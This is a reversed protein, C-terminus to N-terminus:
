ASQGAIRPVHAAASGEGNVGHCSACPANVSAPASKAAATTAQVPAAAGLIVPLGALVSIGAVIPGM